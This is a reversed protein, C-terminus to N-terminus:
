NIMYEEILETYDPIDNYHWKHLIVGDKMLIIGPNARIMTKLVVDDGFYFEFHEDAGIDESFNHAVEPLSSTIAIMSYGKEDVDKYLRNIKEFSEMNTEELDYAIVFLQYDPNAIFLDTHDIGETDEIILEHTKLVESDDTRQDVFVWKTMWISDQWPYDPSLYEKEEGTETNRFLLYIRAEGGGEADMDNGVKWERFDILPLHNYNHMSFGVFGVVSLLLVMFAYGTMVPPKYKKRAFFIIATLIILIINKYFTEWNSLKIADGFCGCDPVPEWIADVMTLITFFIMLPFLLWSTRKIWANFLLSIGLVFELACLGVSLFIALSIAWETGYAIFYDEIRYVTGLPDVGKVTGSFIFVLGVFLRSLNRILKM